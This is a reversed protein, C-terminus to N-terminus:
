ALRPNNKKEELLQIKQEKMSGNSSPRKDEHSDANSNNRQSKECPKLMITPLTHANQLSKNEKSDRDQVQEHSLMMETPITQQNKRRKM